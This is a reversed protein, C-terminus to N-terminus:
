SGARRCELIRGDEATAYVAMQTVPPAITWPAHPTVSDGTIRARASPWRGAGDMVSQWIGDDLGAVLLKTLPPYINPDVVVSPGALTLLNGPVETWDSWIGNAGRSSQQVRNDIDRIYATLRGNVIAATPEAMTRANAGVRKWGAWSLADLPENFYVFNDMGRVLLVLRHDDQEIAFPGSLTEGGGPVPLWKTWDSGDFRSELVENNLGRVFLREVNNHMVVAPRSITRAGGPVEAWPEWIGSWRTRLVRNDVGRIFIDLRHSHDQDNVVAAPGSPSRGNNPIETCALAQAQARGVPGWLLAM